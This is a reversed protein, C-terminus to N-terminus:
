PRGHMVPVGASNSAEVCIEDFAAELVRHPEHLRYGLKLGGDAITYRLKAVVRWPERGQYPRLGLIFADPVPISKKAGATTDDTERYSFGRVGSKLVVSEDFVVKRTSKITTVLELLTAADPDTIETSHDDIFDAFQTQSMLQGSQRTWTAWEETQRCDLLVRDATWGDAGDLIGVIHARDIDAWLELPGPESGRKALYEGLSAPDFVSVERAARLPKLRWSDLDSPELVKLRGDETRYVHPKTIDIPTPPALRETERMVEIIADNETRDIGSTPASPGTTM